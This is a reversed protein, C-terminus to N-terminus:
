TVWIMSFHLPPSLNRDTRAVEGRKTSEREKLRRNPLERHCRIGSAMEEM